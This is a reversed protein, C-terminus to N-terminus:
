SALGNQEKQSNPGINRALCALCEVCNTFVGTLEFTAM